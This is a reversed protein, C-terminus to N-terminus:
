DQLYDRLLGRTAQGITRLADTPLLRVGPRFQLTVTGHIPIVVVM